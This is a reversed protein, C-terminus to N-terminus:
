SWARCKHGFWGTGSNQAIAIGKRDNLLKKGKMWRAGKMHQVNLIKLKYIQKANHDRM